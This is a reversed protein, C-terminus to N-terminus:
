QNENREALIKHIDSAAYLISIIIVSQNVVLYCILYNGVVMKRIGLTKEPETQIVSYRLPFTDLSQIAKRIKNCVDTASDPAFLNESIYSYLEKLDNEAQGTIFVNYM